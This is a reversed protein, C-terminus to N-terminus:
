EMAERFRSEMTLDRGGSWRPNLAIGCECAKSASMQIIGHSIGDFVRHSLPTHLLQRLTSSLSAWDLPLVGFNQPLM